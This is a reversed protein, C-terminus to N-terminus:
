RIEALYHLITINGHIIRLLRTVLRTIHSRQMLLAAVINLTHQALTALRNGRQKKNRLKTIEVAKRRKDACGRLLPFSTQQMDDKPM